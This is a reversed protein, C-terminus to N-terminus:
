GGGLLSGLSGMLSSPDLGNLMGKAEEDLRAIEELVKDIRAANDVGIQLAQYSAWAMAELLQRDTKGEVHQSAFEDKTLRAM